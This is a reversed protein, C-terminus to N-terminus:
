SSPPPERNPKATTALFLTVSLGLIPQTPLHSALSQFDPTWTRNFLKVRLWKFSCLFRLRDLRTALAHDQTRSCPHYVKSAGGRTIDPFEPKTVHRPQLPFLWNHWSKLDCASSLVLWAVTKLIGVSPPRPSARKKKVSTDVVPPKGDKKGKM